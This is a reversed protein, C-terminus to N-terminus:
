RWRTPSTEFRFAGHRFDLGVHRAVDVFRIGGLGAAALEPRTGPVVSLEGRPGVIVYRDGQLELELTEDLPAPDGTDVVAPPSGSYTALAKTGSLKALM